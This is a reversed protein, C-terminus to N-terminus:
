KSVLKGACYVIKSENKKFLILADPSLFHKVSPSLSSCWQQYLATFDKLNTDQWDGHTGDAHIISYAIPTFPRQGGVPEVYTCKIILVTFQKLTAMAELAIEQGISTDENPHKCEFVLFNGRRETFGDFNTPMIGSDTRLATFNTAAQENVSM